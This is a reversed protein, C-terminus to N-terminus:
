LARAMILDRQPDDGLQFVHSGVKTFGYKEYFRTARPNDEWVGLWLADAGRELVRELLKQMLEQAIGRGHWSSDVYFRQIELPQEARVSSHSNDRLYAYGVLEAEHEAILVELDPHQLERAQIAEGYASQCYANINEASNQASFTERFTKEALDALVAADALRASRINVVSNYKSMM